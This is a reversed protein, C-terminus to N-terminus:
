LMKLMNSFSCYLSIREKVSCVVGELCYCPMAKVIKYKAVALSDPNDEELACFMIDFIDKEDAKDVEIYDLLQKVSIFNQLNDNVMEALYYFCAKLLESDYFNWFQMDKQNNTTEIISRVLKDINDKKEPTINRVARAALLQLEPTLNIIENNNLKNQDTMDERVKWFFANIFAKECFKFFDDTNLESPIDNFIKNDERKRRNFIEGYYNM